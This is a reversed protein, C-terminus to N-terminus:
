ECPSLIFRPIAMAIVALTFAINLVLGLKAMFYSRDVSRGGKEEATEPLGTMAARSFFIGFVALALSGASVLHLLYWHGTSCAHYTLAYGITEDLAFAVPGIILSIWQMADHRLSVKDQAM